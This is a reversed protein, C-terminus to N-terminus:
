ALDERASKALAVADLKLHVQSTLFEVSNKAKKFENGKKM